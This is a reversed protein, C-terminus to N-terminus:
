GDLETVWVPFVEVNRLAPHDGLVCQALTNCIKVWNAESRPHADLDVYAKSIGSQGPSRMGNATWEFTILYKM